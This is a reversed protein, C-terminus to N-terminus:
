YKLSKHFPRKQRAKNLRKILECKADFLEEGLALFGHNKIELFIEDGLVELVSNVLEITGYPEERRTEKIGLRFANNSIDKCHGHLIATINPRNKYIAYHVMSESSPERKGSAYVIRKELDVDVVKVFCDDTLKSLDSNAATIIFPDEGVKVRFSLNGYSGEGYSPTIDKRHFFEGIDRLVIISLNRPSEDGVMEVKFKVGEYVM